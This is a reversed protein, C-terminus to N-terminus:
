KSKNVRAALKEIQKISLGTNKMVIEKSIGAKLFNEAIEEAKKEAREEARVEIADDLNWERYLINM